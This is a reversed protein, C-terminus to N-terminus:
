QLENASNVQEVAKMLTSVAKAIDKKDIRVVKQTDITEVMKDVLKM